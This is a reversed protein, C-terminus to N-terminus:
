FGNIIETLIRWGLHKVPHLDRVYLFRDMSKSRPTTETGHDVEAMIMEVKHFSFSNHIIFGISKLNYKRPLGLFCHAQFCFYALWGAWVSM